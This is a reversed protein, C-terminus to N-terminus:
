LIHLLVQLSYPSFVSFVSVIVSNMFPTAINSQVFLTRFNDLNWTSPLSLPKTYIEFDTKFAGTVVIASPVLIILTFLTLLFGKFIKYM